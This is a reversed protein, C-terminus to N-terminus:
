QAASSLSASTDLYKQNEDRIKAAEADYLFPLFAFRTGKTVPLAAHLLSCSFVVAGGKEARYQQPGFEPFRLNGGEYEEPNLNITVAFRRHATARTTNDRHPRFHGGSKAEYCGIMYREIATARYCFAKRISPLLRSSLYGRIEARLEADEVMCDDRKKITYDVVGITKGGVDRMFGSDAHEHTKYYEILHDCFEPTFVRPVSLVPAVMSKPEENTSDKTKPFSEVLALVQEVHGEPTDSDAFAFSKITRLAPDLVVTYPKTAGDATCAGYGKTVIKDFDWLHIIGFGVDKVRDKSRDQPDTCIGFFGADVANFLDERKHFLSLVRAAFPNSTSGFFCLVLYVGGITSFDYNPNRTTQSIFLPASEGFKLM